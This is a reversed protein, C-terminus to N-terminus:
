STWEGSFVIKATGGTGTDFDIVVRVYPMSTVVPDWAIVPTANNYAQRTGALEIWNASDISGELYVEGEADGSDADLNAQIAFQEYKRMDSPPSVGDADIAISEIITRVDVFHGM